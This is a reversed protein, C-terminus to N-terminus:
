EVAITTLNKDYLPYQKVKDPPIRLRSRIRETLLDVELPTCNPDIMVEEVMHSLEKQTFKVKIGKKRQNSDSLVILRCEHEYDFDKRKILLLDAYKDWDFSKFFADHYASTNLALADISRKQLDYKVRGFYVKTNLLSLRKKNLTNLFTDLDIKIRICRSEIGREKHTYALWSAENAPKDTFCTCYTSQPKNFGKCNSYDTKCVFKSEYPDDWAEPNSIFLIGKDLFDIAYNARMFKYISEKPTDKAVRLEISTGKPKAVWVNTLTFKGPKAM